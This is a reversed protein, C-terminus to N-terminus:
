ASPFCGRPWNAVWFRLEIGKESIGSGTLSATTEASSRENQVLWPMSGRPMRRAANLLALPPGWCPAEVIV